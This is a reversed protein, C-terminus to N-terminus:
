KDSVDQVMGREALAGMVLDGLEEVADAVSGPEFLRSQASWLLQKTKSDYLNSELRYYTYTVATSREGFARPYYLDFRHYYGYARSDLIPDVYHAVEKDIGVLRTTFITEAQEEKVKKLVAETTLSDGPPIVRFSPVAEVGREEFLEVFHEEFLRRAAEESSIGVVLVSEVVGGSYDKDSWVAVLKSRSCGSILILVVAAALAKIPKM